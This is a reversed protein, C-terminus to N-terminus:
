AQLNTLELAKNCVLKEVLVCIEKADVENEQCRDTTNLLEQGIQYRGQFAKVLESGPLCIQHGQHDVSLDTLIPM